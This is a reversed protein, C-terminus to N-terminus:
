IARARLPQQVSRGIERRKAPMKAPQEILRFNGIQAGGFPGPRCLVHQHAAGLVTQMQRRLLAGIDRTEDAASASEGRAAVPKISANRAHATVPFILCM